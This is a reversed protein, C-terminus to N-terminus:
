DSASRGASELEVHGDAYYTVDYGNYPFVVRGQHRDEGETPAFIRDLCEADIVDNLPPLNEPDENARKAVAEVVRTVGGPRM